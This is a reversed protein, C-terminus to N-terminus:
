TYPWTCTGNLFATKVDFTKIHMKNKAAIAFLMRLTEQTIDHEVRVIKDNIKSKDEIHFRLPINNTKFLTHGPINTFTVDRALIVRQKLPDWLRYGHPCYGVFVTPKARNDLKKVYANNKAYAITGFMQINSLDQPKDTWMEIPLRNLTKTPSRNTLYAATRLAEGWMEKPLESDNLLARTRGMLTRIIREGKGNLQPCYPITYDLTIGKNECWSKFDNGIFEGGNVCRTTSTKNQMQTEYKTIFTKLFHSSESKHNMLYVACFHTYDDLIVLFYGKNDYTDPSVTGVDTHLLELPRSARERVTNHPQKIANSEACVTCVLKHDEISINFKVGTCLTQLKILNHIGLHGMKRHWTIFENLDTETYLAHKIKPLSCKLKVTYLNADKVGELLILNEPVKVQGKIFMVKDETFIVTTEGGSTAQGVSLLNKTLGPVYNVNKLECNDAYIDGSFPSALADGKKATQINVSAPKLKHMIDSDKSLHGTCGSDVTLSVDSVETESTEKTEAPGRKNFSLFCVKDQSTTEHQDKSETAKQSKTEDRKAKSRCEATNHIQM